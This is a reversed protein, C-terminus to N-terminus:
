GNMIEYILKIKKKEENYFNNLDDLYLDTLKHDSLAKQKNLEELIHIGRPILSLKYDTLKYPHNMKRLEELVQLYRSFDPEEIGYDYNEINLILNILTTLDCIIVSRGPQSGRSYLHADALVPGILDPDGFSNAAFVVDRDPVGSAIGIGIRFLSKFEPPLLAYTIGDVELTRETVEAFWERYHMFNAQIFEEAKLIMDRACLTARKAADLAPILEFDAGSFISYRLNMGKGTTSEAYLHDYLTGSNESFWIIGGDGTDKLLFGNYKKAVTSMEKAFKYKIRQEKLANHLKVGMYSSGRIDYVLVTVCRRHAEVFNEAIKGLDQASEKLDLIGDGGLALARFNALDTVVKVPESPKPPLCFVLDLLYEGVCQPIVIEKFYTNYAARVAEFDIEMGLMIKREFKKLCALDKSKQRHLEECERTLNKVFLKEEPEALPGFKNFFLYEAFLESIKKRKDVQRKEAYYKLEDEEAFYDLIARRRAEYDKLHYINGLFLRELRSFLNSIKKTITDIDAGKDVENELIERLGSNTELYLDNLQEKLRLSYLDIGKQEETMKAIVERLQYAVKKVLKLLSPPTLYNLYVAPIKKKAEAYRTFGLREIDALVNVLLGELRANMLSRHIAILLDPTLSYNGLERATEHLHKWPKVQDIVTRLQAPCKEALGAPLPLGNKRHGIFLPLEYGEYHTLQGGLQLIMHKRNAFIILQDASLDLFNLAQIILALKQVYDNPDVYRDRLLKCYNSNEEVYNLMGILSTKKM